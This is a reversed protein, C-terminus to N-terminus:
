PGNLGFTGDIDVPGTSGALEVREIWDEATDSASEAASLRVDILAGSVLQEEATQTPLTQLALVEVVAMGAARLAARVSPKRLALRWLGAYYRASATPQQSLTHVRCSLTFTRLGNVTASLKGGGADGDSYRVEDVGVPAEAVISLVAFPYAPRPANQDAWITTIGLANSVASRLAPQLTAWDM